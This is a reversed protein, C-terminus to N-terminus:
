VGHDGGAAMQGAPSGHSPVPGVGPQLQFPLEESPTCLGSSTLCCPRPLCSCTAQPFAFMVLNEWLSKVRVTCLMGPMILLSHGGEMGSQGAPAFAQCGAAEELEDSLTVESGRGLAPPPGM